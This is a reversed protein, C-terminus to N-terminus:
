RYVIPISTTTSQQLKPKYGHSLLPIQMPHFTLHPVYNSAKREKVMRNEEMLQRAHDYIPAFNVDDLTIREDSPFSITLKVCCLVFAIYIYILKM